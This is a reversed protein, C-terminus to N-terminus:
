ILDLNPFGRKKRKKQANRNRKRDPPLPKQVPDVRPEFARVLKEIEQDCEAIEQQYAKYLLRSQRLVFLHEAQWNGVLSKQITEASAKIRPDRLKALVAPDREGQLIADVIALGTTGTIDSIVHQVAIQVLEGRHRIIARVACVEAELRFAARLLGVSHLYQLWQFEHWDTRRGPVNKM